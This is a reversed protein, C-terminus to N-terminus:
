YLHGIVRACLNGYAVCNSGLRGIVLTSPEGDKFCSDDPLNSVITNVPVLNGRVAIERSPDNTM